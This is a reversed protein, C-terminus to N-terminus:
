EHAIEVGFQINVRFQNDDVFEFKLIPENYQPSNITSWIKHFGSGREKQAKVRTDKKKIESEIDHLRKISEENFKGKQINNTLSVMFKNDILSVNVEMTLDNIQLGSHEIANEFSACYVDVMGDLTRGPMANDSTNSIIKLGSWNDAGSISSSVMTKAILLPFDLAYDQRDYVESRKFWTSINTIQHQISTKARAIHNHLEGMREGFGLLGLSENLRDFAQLISSKITNLITEKVIILNKDTKEWLIDICSDIFDDINNHRKLKTQTYLREFSNTRYEFLGHPHGSSNIGDDKISVQILEDRVYSIKNDIKRGFEELLSLVSEKEQEDLDVLEQKWYTNLSYDDSGEIKETVLNEDSIPKRLANSFKGHRVRTSLYTNLGHEGMLFENTIESLMASFQTDEKMIGNLNSVILNISSKPTDINGFMDGLVEIFDTDSNSETPISNKYKAYVDSLRSKLNKKIATVDVYVRSQDVLTTAKAIESKKVLDKIEFQYESANEPDIDVLLRCVQIRAEEIERTGDYLITQGMIEPRWVLKLYLRILDISFKNIEILDTPTNIHNNTNFSEFAYRLHSIKDNKNYNTYLALVIPLCITDPWFDPDDLHQIIEDFPLATPTSTYNIYTNVLHKLSNLLDGSKMYSIVIATHCKLADAPSAFDLAKNFYFISKDYKHTVLYHQGLYKYYRERSIKKVLDDSCSEGYFTLEFVMKTIDYKERFFCNLHEKINSKNSLLILSFPSTRVVRSYIERLRNNSEDYTQVTLETLVILRLVISWSQNKFRDNLAYLELAAAYSDSDLKIVKRLNNAIDEMLGELKIVTKSKGESKLLILLASIDTINEKDKFYQSGSQAVLEYDGKSYSEILYERAQSDNNIFECDFAIMIPILRADKNTKFLMDLPNKLAEKIKSSIDESSAAWRLISVLSEYLDILSSKYDFFLIMRVQDINLNNIDFVKAKVYEHIIQFENAKFLRSLETQLHGPISSGEVRKAIFHILIETVFNGSHGEMIESVMNKKSETGKWHEICSLRNETLWISHGFNEEVENLIKNVGEFDDSLTCSELRSSIKIYENIEEKFTLCISFAWIIENYFDGMKLIDDFNHLQDLSKPFFDKNLRMLDKKNICDHFYKFLNQPPTGTKVKELTSLSNKRDVRLAAKTRQVLNLYRNNSKNKIM